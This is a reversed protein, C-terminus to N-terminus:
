ARAQDLCRSGNGGHSHPMSVQGRQRSVCERAFHYIVDIHKSRMSTLPNKLLKIASQNDAKISITGGSLNLDLMLKRMWLAEKVAQAAAMYEAETTSVAVTPQRKSSWSIAGGNMIFVFGTTSRRTDLDGAYDADSYAQITLDSGKYTIGFNATGALYRLVGKAAEWHVTCPQAIYRSLAGVAHAIDPRTCVSLYLLSGVLSGYAHVSTDLKEGDTSNLKISPSLPVRRTKGDGLNYQDILNTTMREQSLHITRKARDSVVTMGLFLQADGLDRARFAQLLRAKVDDVTTQTDAATLIDDVYM